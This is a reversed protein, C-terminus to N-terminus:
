SAFMPAAEQWDVIRRERYDDIQEDSYGVEQMVSRTQQGPYPATRYRGPTESFHVIGGPRMYRGYRPNEDETEVALENDRAHPDDLLFEEKETETVRVCAVDQATLLEEWDAASRTAFLQALQTILEEDHAQRAAPAFRPDALLDPRGVTTCFKAWEDEFLCALFVWGEQAPYLRYLGHLGYGEADPIAYPPRGVYDYAEGFNAWANAIMMTDQIAQGKGTRERDWLGLMIATAVAQSTNPDPNGENARMLRRSTEKIEEMTM